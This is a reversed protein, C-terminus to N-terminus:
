GRSVEDESPTNPTNKFNSLCNLDRGAEKEGAKRERPLFNRGCTEGRRVGTREPRTFKCSGAGAFRKRSGQRERTGRERRRRGATGTGLKRGGWGRTQASQRQGARPEPHSVEGLWWCLPRAALTGCASGPADSRGSSRQAGRLAARPRPVGRRQTRAAAAGAGRGGRGKKLTSQM